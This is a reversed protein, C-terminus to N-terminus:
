RRHFLLSCRGKGPPCRLWAQVVRSNVAKQTLPMGDMIVSRRVVVHAPCTARAPSRRDSSRWVGASSRRSATQQFGAVDRRPLCYLLRVRSASQISPSQEPPSNNAANPGRKSDPAEISHRWGQKWLPGHPVDILAEPHPQFWRVIQRQGGIEVRVHRYYSATVRAERGRIVDPLRRGVLAHHNQLCTAYPVPCGAPISPHQQRIHGVLIEM